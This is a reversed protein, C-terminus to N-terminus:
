ADRRRVLVVAAALAVAAYACLVAFGAAPALPFYGTSPTYTANVQAYRQVSQQIAFAAAPTVRLLWNAPGPPLVSAVALIYPLVVLVIVATVAGAGRRLITGVALALVAAVALLAATGVIVRVDTRMSTPFIENGNSRLIRNGLLVAIAAAVLGTVFTVAGIVVAKAALVRSRRPSAALTTRILGRRYEATVFSVALVIFVILGAFAGVLSREIKGLPGSVAPAIDGSGTVTFRGDVNQYRDATLAREAGGAGADGSWTGNAAAGDLVVHDFAATAQTPGGVTESGGLRQTTEEHDPSTVFLGIEVPSSSGSLRVTGVVIWNNGDTSEYGTLTEGFRTLRLWRPSSATVGGLSGATDNTFDDQMRVGHDGTVMIAAYASGPTTTQKVIVGAKAWPEITPSTGEPGSISGTLSTVRVTLTGDGVMTRHVFSFSDNVAEGDPGIPISGRDATTAAGVKAGDGGRGGGGSGGGGSGGGAASLLGVAVMLLAAAASGVVWSRVTRFKTWEAHVLQVFGDRGTPMSSSYSIVSDVDNSPASM